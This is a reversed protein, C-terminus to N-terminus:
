AVHLLFHQSASTSMATAQLTTSFRRALQVLIAQKAPALCSMFLMLLM